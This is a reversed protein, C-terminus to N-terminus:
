QSLSRRQQIASRQVRADEGLAPTRVIGHEFLPRSGWGLFPTLMIGRLTVKNAQM